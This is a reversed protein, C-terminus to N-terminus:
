QNDFWLNYTYDTKPSLIEGYSVKSCGLFIKDTKFLNQNLFQHMYNVLCLACNVFGHVSNAFWSCLNYFLICLKYVLFFLKKKRSEM